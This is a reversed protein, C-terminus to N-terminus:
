RAPCQRAGTLACIPPYKASGTLHNFSLSRLGINSPCARRRGTARPWAHAYGSLVRSADPDGPGSRPDQTCIM